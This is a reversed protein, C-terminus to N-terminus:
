WRARQATEMTASWLWLAAVCSVQFESSTAAARQSTCLDDRHLLEESGGPVSGGGFAGLGLPVSYRGWAGGGIAAIGASDGFGAGGGELGPIVAMGASWTASANGAPGGWSTRSGGGHAKWSSEQM